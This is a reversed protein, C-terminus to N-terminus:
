HYQIDADQKLKDRWLSLLVQAQESAAFQQLGSAEMAPMRDLSGDRIGSVEMVVVERISADVIEIIRQSGAPAPVAFAKAQIAPPLKGDFRNAALQVQWPYGAALAVTEVDGGALLQDRLKAATAQMQENAKAIVAQARVDEQVQDFPILAAPRHATVRIVMVRGDDLELVQSNNGSGILEPNFAAARVLANALPGQQLTNKKLDAKQVTLGLIGAASALDPATFTQDALEDIKEVFTNEAAQQQLALELRDRVEVYEPAAKARTDLLKVLHVGSETVVPASVQGVQLSQLAQEFAEPFVDGASYGVDGGSRASSPDQSYSAALAEFSEGAAMRERLTELKQTAQEVSTGENTELLIHAAHYEKSGQYDAYEQEYRARIQTEPIEPYFDSKKMEVYEISVEEDSFFDNPHQEYYSLLEENTLTIGQLFADQSLTIYRVDREQRLLQVLTGLHAKDSFESLAVGSLLHQQRIDSALASRYSAPTMGANALINRFRNESFVGNEQFVTEQLIMADILNKPAALGMSEAVNSLLAQQVLSELVPKALQDDQFQEPDFASGMRAAIQAKQRELAARFEADTIEIGNVEAKPPTKTVGLFDVGFFVFGIAIFAVLFKAILGQANDRINQLM